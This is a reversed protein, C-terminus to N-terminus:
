IHILSLHAELPLVYLSQAFSHVNAIARVFYLFLIFGMHAYSCILCWLFIEFCYSAFICPVRPLRDTIEGHIMVLSVRPVEYCVYALASFVALKGPNDGCVEEVIYSLLPFQLLGSGFGLVLSYHYYPRLREGVKRRRAEEMAENKPGKAEDGFRTPTAMDLSPQHSAGSPYIFRMDLSPDHVEEISRGVAGTKSNKYLTCGTSEEYGCVRIDQPLSSM